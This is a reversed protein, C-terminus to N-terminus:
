NFSFVIYCIVWISTTNPADKQLPMGLKLSALDSSCVVNLLNTEKKLGVALNHVTYLTKVGVRLAISKLM